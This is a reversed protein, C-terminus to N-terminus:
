AILWKEERTKPPQVSEVFEMLEGKSTEAIYVIALEESGISSIIKM